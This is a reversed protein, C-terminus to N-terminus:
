SRVKAVHQSVGFFAGLTNQTANKRMLAVVLTVSRFLGLAYPRGASTLAGVIEQVRATLEALQGDTLGTIAEYRLPEEM